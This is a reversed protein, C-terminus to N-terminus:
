AAAQKTPDYIKKLVGLVESKNRISEALFREDQISDTLVKKLNVGSTEQGINIFAFHNIGLGLVVRILEVYKQNDSVENDGDSYHQLYVNYADPSYRKRVIGLALEGASSCKTGGGDSRKFFDAETVEFAKTDHVIFVTEVRPYKSRLFEVGWWNISRTIYKEFDGMSGSIDAMSIVVAANDERIENRWTRVRYDDPRLPSLVAHGTDQANRRMNEYVSRTIDLNTPTRKKRVDDFILTDTEMQQNIRPRLFPLGLDAFVMEKLEEITFEVDYSEGGPETGAQKGNTPGKAPRSDLIDGVQEGGKGTGVGSDGQSYRIHPLELSRLPIKVIRKSGPDATVITGDSIITDLNGKIAEKVKENHRAEDQSGQGHLSWDQRSISVRELDIAQM